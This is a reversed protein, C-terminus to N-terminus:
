NIVLPFHKLRNKNNSVQLVQTLVEPDTTASTTVNSIFPSRVFDGFYSLYTPAVVQAAPPLNLNQRSVNAYRVSDFKM